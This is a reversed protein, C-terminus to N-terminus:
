VPSYGKLLSAFVKKARKSVFNHYKIIQASSMSAQNKMKMLRFSNMGGIETSGEEYGPQGSNRRQPGKGAIENMEIESNQDEKSFSFVDPGHDRQFSGTQFNEENQLIGKQASDFWAYM